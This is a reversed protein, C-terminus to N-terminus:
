FSQAGSSFWGIWVCLKRIQHTIKKIPILLSVALVVSVLTGVRLIERNNYVGLSASIKM